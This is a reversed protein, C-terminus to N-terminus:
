GHVAIRHRRRQHHRVLDGDTQGLSVAARELDDRLRSVVHDDALDLRLRKTQLRTATPTCGQELGVSERVGALEAVRLRVEHVMERASKRARPQYLSVGRTQKAFSEIKM